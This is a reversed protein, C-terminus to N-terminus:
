AQRKPVYKDNDFDWSGLSASARSSSRARKGEKGLPGLRPVSALNAATLPARQPRPSPERTVSQRRADAVVPLSPPAVSGDPMTLVRSMQPSKSPPRSPSRNNQGYRQQAPPPATAPATSAATYPPSTRLQQQRSTSWHPQPFAGAIMVNTSQSSSRRAIQVVQGPPPARSFNPPARQVQTPPLSTSSPLQMQRHSTGGAIPQIAPTPQEISTSIYWEGKKDSKSSYKLHKGSGNGAVILVGQPVSLKEYLKSIHTNTSHVRQFHAYRLNHIAM